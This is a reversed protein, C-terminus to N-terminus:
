RRLGNFLKDFMEGGSDRKAADWVVDVLRHLQDSSIRVTEGSLSPNKSKIFLWMQHKTKINM